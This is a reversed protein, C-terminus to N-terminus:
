KTYKYIISIFIKFKIYFLNVKEGDNARNYIYINYIYTYM